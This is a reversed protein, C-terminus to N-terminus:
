GRCSTQPTHGGVRPYAHRNDVVALFSLFSQMNSAVVFFPAGSSPTFVLHGFVITIHTLVLAYLVYGWIPLSFIGDLFIM